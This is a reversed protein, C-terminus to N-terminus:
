FNIKVCNVKPFPQVFVNNQRTNYPNNNINALLEEQFFPAYNENIIKYMM